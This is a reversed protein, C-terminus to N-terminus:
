RSARLSGTRTASANAQSGQPPAVSGLTVVLYGDKAAFAQPAVHAEGVRFGHPWLPESRTEFLVGFVLEQVTAALLPEDFAIGSSSMRWSNEIPEFAIGNIRNVYPLARVCGRDITLTGLKEPEGKTKRLLDLAVNEVEITVVARDSTPLALQEADASPRPDSSDPRSFRVHPPSSLRMQFELSDRAPLQRLGPILALVAESRVLRKVDGTPTRAKAGLGEFAAGIAANVLQESIAISSRDTPLAPPALPGGPVSPELTFGVTLAKGATDVRQPELRFLTSGVKWQERVFGDQALDAAASRARDLLLRDVRAVSRRLHSKGLSWLLWTPVFTNRCREPKVLHIADRADNSRAEVPVLRLDGDAVVLHLDLGLNLPHGEEVYLGAGECEAQQGLIKREIRDITVDADLIDFSLSLSPTGSDGMALVPDSLRLEYSLGHMGHGANSRSGTFVPGGKAHFAGLLFRNADAETLRVVVADPTRLQGPEGAQGAQPVLATVLLATALLRVGPL